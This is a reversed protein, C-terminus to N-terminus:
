GIEQHYSDDRRIPLVTIHHIHAEEVLLRLGEYANLKEISCKTLVHRDMAIEHFTNALNKANAASKRTENELFEGIHAGEFYLGPEIQTELVLASIRTRIQGHFSTRDRPKSLNEALDVVADIAATDTPELYNLLPFFIDRIAM